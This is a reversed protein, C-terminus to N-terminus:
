GTEVVSLPMRPIFSPEPVILGAAKFEEPVDRSRVIAITGNDPVGLSKKQSRPRVM